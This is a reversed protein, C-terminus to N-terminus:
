FPSFRSAIKKKGFILQGVETLFQVCVFEREKFDEELHRMYRPSRESRSNLGVPDVRVEALVKCVIYRRRKDAIRVRYAEM